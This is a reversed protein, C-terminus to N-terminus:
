GRLREARSMLGSAGAAITQQLDAMLAGVCRALASNLASEAEADSGTWNISASRGRRIATRVRKRGQWFEAELVVNASKTDALGLIYAKRMCLTVHWGPWATGPAIAEFRIGAPVEAQLAGAVWGSLQGAEFRKRELSGLARASGDRADVITYGITQVPQPSPQARAPPVPYQLVIPETHSACGLAGLVALALPLPGVRM